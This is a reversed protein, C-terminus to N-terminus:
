EYYLFSFFFMITNKGHVLKHVKMSDKEDLKKLFQQVKESNM